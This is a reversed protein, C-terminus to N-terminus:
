EEAVGDLLELDTPLTDMNDMNIGVWGVHQEGSPGSIFYYFYM